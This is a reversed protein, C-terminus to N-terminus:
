GGAYEVMELWPHRGYSETNHVVLEILGRICSGSTRSLCTSNAMNAPRSDIQFAIVGIVELPDICQNSYIRSSDPRNECRMKVSRERRSSSGPSRSARSAM